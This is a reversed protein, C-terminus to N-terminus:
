STTARNVVLTKGVAPIEAPELTGERWALFRYTGHTLEHAFEFNVRTIGRPGMELITIELGPLSRVNGERSLPPAALGGNVVELELTNAGTRLYRHEFPARSLHWWADPMPLGMVKRYYYGHFELAWSNFNLFVAKQGPQVDSVISQTHFRELQQHAQRWGPGFGFWVFPPRIVLTFLFVLGALAGLGSRADLRERARRWWYCGAFSVLFAGGVFPILLLHPNPARAALPLLSGLMGAVMWLVRRRQRPASRQWAPVVFLTALVSAALGVMVRGTRMGPFFWPASPVGLFLEGLMAGIKTPLAFLFGAPNEFPDLYAQVGTSGYGMGKYYSLYGAM